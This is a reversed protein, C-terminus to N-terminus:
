LLRVRQNRTSDSRQFNKGARNVGNLFGLRDVLPHGPLVEPALRGSGHSNRFAVDWGAGAPALLHEEVARDVVRGIGLGIEVAELDLVSAEPGPGTLM